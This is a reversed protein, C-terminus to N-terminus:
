LRSVNKKGALIEVSAPIDITVLAQSSFAKPGIYKVNSNPAFIVSRLKDCNPTIQGPKVPCGQFAALGIWEVKSGIIVSVIGSSGFARNGITKLMTNETFTVNSLSYIDQFTSNGISTVSAPIEVSRLSTGTFAQDGIETLL